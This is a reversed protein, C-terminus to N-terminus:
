QWRRVMDCRQRSQDSYYYRLLCGGCVAACNNSGGDGSEAITGREVGPDRGARTVHDGCVSAVSNFRSVNTSETPSVCMLLLCWTYHHHECISTIVYHYLKISVNSMLGHKMHLFFIWSQYKELHRLGPTTIHKTLTRTRTRTNLLHWILSLPDFCIFTIVTLMSLIEIHYVLTYCM